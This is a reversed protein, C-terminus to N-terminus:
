WKKNVQISNKTSIGKIEAEDLTLIICKVDLKELDEKYKYFKLGLQGMQHSFIFLATLQESFDYVIDTEISKLITPSLDNNVELANLIRTKSLTTFFKKPRTNIGEKKAMNQPTIMKNGRVFIMPFNIDILLSYDNTNFYFVDSKTIDFKKNIYNLYDGKSQFKFNKQAFCNSAILLFTVILYKNWM